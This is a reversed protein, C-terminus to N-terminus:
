HNSCMLASEGYLKEINEGCRPCRMTKVGITFRDLKKVTPSCVFKIPDAFVMSGGSQVYDKNKDKHVRRMSVLSYTDNCSTSDVTETVVETNWNGDLGLLTTFADQCFDKVANYFGENDCNPYSRSVAFANTTPSRMIFSRNSKSNAKFKFGSVEYDYILDSAQFCVISEKDLMQSFPGCAHAGKFIGSCTTWNNKNIACTLYDMPDISMHMGGKVMRKQILKSFEIDFNKDCFYGSLFRSLKMGKKYQSFCGDFEKPCDGLQNKVFFSTPIANLVPNYIWLYSKSNNEKFESVLMKMDSESITSEVVKSYSLKQGLMLFHEYKAEAWKELYWDVVEDLIKSTRTGLKILSAVSDRDVMSIMKALIEKDQPSTEIAKNAMPLVAKPQAEEKPKPEVNEVDIIGFNDVIREM